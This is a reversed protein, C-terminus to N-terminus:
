PEEQELLDALALLDRIMARNPGDQAPLAAIVARVRRAVFRRHRSTLIAVDLGVAELARLAPLKSSESGTTSQDDSM